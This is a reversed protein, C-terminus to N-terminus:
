RGDTAGELDKLSVEREQGSAMDKVMAVGRAMETPGLTIVERAGETAAVKFQKGVAQPKLSYAVSKGRDRLAHALALARPRLEDAVTVVFYDLTRATSPLLGRERLLDTLVVDGMGFGVAPLPEGGVLELLRDYRGGGCIARMEGKRDFLEFVIGTYYALGRVIRLDLEVYAGLGMAGLIGLYERLRALEAGVEASSGFKAAVDDLTGDLLRLVEEAAQASVGCEAVLRDRSRAHGERELKDILDSSCM